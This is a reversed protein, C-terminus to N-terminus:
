NFSLKPQSLFNKFLGGTEITKILKNQHFVETNREGNKYWVCELYCNYDVVGLVADRKPVYKIVQMKPATLRGRIKVWDGSKFKRQM